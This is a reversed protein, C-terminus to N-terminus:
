SATELSLLLVIHGEEEETCECCGTLSKLVM